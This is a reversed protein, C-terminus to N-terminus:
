SINLQSSFFQAIKQRLENSLQLHAVEAFTRCYALQLLLTMEEQPFQLSYPPAHQPCFAEGSVIYYEELPRQCVACVSEPSFLGDHRLLKLCFSAVLAQPDRMLPLKELYSSLLTYLDPAPVNALQSTLTAKLIEGAAELTALSQRLPLYQTIASIERCSYLDSNGLTYVFEARTLPSTVNGMRPRNAGKLFLKILGEHSTFVTLIRDYDQFNLAQLIIGETRYAQM